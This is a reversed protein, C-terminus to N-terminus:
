ATEELDAINISGAERLDLYTALVEYVGLLGGAYRRGLFRWYSMTSSPSPHGLRAFIANRIATKKYLIFTLEKLVDPYDCLDGKYRSGPAPMEHNFPPGYLGFCLFCVVGSPFTTQAKFTKWENTSCIGTKCRYTFHGRGLKGNVWCIRCQGVLEGALSAIRELTAQGVDPNAMATTGSPLSPAQSEPMSSTSTAQATPSAALGTLPAHHTLLSDNSPAIASTNVVSPAPILPAEAPTRGAPGPDIADLMTGSSLSVV